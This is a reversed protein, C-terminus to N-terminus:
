LCVVGGAANLEAFYLLFSALMDRVEWQMAMMTEWEGLLLAGSTSSTHETAIATCFMCRVAVANCTPAYQLLADHTDSLLSRLM